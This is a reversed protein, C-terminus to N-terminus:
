ISDSGDVFFFGLEGEICAFTDEASRVLIMRGETPDELLYGLHFEREGRVRLGRRNGLQVALTQSGGDIVQFDGFPSGVM